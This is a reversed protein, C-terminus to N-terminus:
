FTISVVEVDSLELNTADLPDPATVAQAMFDWTQGSLAPVSPIVLDKSFNGVVDADGMCLLAVPFGISLNVGPILEISGATMSVLVATAAQSALPAGFLAATMASATLLKKM